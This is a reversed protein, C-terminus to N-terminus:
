PALASYRASDSPGASPKKPWTPEHKALVKKLEPWRNLLLEKFKDFKVYHRERLDLEEDYTEILILLEKM